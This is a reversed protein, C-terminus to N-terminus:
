SCLCCLCEQKSESVKEVVCNQTGQSPFPPARLPSPGGVDILMWSLWWRDHGCALGETPNERTDFQGQAPGQSESPGGRGRTGQPVIWPITIEWGASTAMHFSNECFDPLLFLRAPQHKLEEIVWALKM